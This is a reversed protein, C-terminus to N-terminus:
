YVEDDSEGDDSSSDDSVIVTEAKKKVVKPAAKAAPTARSPGAPVSTKVQAGSNGQQLTKRMAAVKMANSVPPAKKPAHGSSRGAIPKSAPAKAPVKAKGKHATLTTTRAKKKPPELDEDDSSNYRRSAPSRSSSSPHSAEYWDIKPKTNRATSRGADSDEDETTDDEDDSEDAAANRGYKETIKRRQEEIEKKAARQKEKKLQKAAAKKEARTTEREERKAVREDERAQAKRKSAAKKALRNAEKREREEELEDEREQRRREREERKRKKERAQIEEKSKKKEAQDAARQAVEKRHLDRKMKREKSQATKAKNRFAKHMEALRGKARRGEQAEIEEDTDWESATKGRGRKFSTISAKALYRKLNPCEGSFGVKDLGSLEALFKVGPVDTIEPVCHKITLEQENVILHLNRLKTSFLWGISRKAQHNRVPPAFNLIVNRIWQLRNPLGSLFRGMVLPQPFYFVNTRYFVPLTEKQIAKSTRTLALLEPLPRSRLEWIGAVKSTLYQPTRNPDNFIEHRNPDLTYGRDVAWGCRKPLPLQLTFTYIKLRAELPLKRIKFPGGAHRDSKNLVFWEGGNPLTFTFEDEEVERHIPFDFDHLIDEVKKIWSPASAGDEPVQASYYKSM